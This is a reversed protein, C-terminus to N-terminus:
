LFLFGLKQLIVLYFVSFYFSFSSSLLFKLMYMKKKLLFSIVLPSLLSLMGAFSNISNFYGRIWLKRELLRSYLFDKGLASQWVADIIILTLSGVLLWFTTGLKKESNVIDITFFYLMAFEFWKGFFGRLSEKPEVSNFITLFCILLITFIPLNLKTKPLLDAFKEKKIIKEFFWIFFILTFFIETTAKSIPLFFVLFYFIHLKATNLWRLVKGKKFSM